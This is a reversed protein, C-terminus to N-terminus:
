AASQEGGGRALRSQVWMGAAALAILALNPLYQFHDAVFTYRFPYVNFFGLVPFLSGGFILWAALPARSWTRLRWLGIGSAVVGADRDGDGREGEAQKRGAAAVAVDDLHAAAGRVHGHM